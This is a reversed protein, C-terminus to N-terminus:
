FWVHTHIDGVILTSHLVVVYRLVWMFGMLSPICNLLSLFLFHSSFPSVHPFLFLATTSSCRNARSPAPPLPPSPYLDHHFLSAELAM